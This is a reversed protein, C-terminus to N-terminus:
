SAAWWFMQRCASVQTHQHDIFSQKTPFIPFGTGLGNPPILLNISESWDLFDDALYVADEDKWGNIMRKYAAVLTDVDSQCLCKKPDARVELDVGGKRVITTKSGVAAATASAALALTALSSFFRM